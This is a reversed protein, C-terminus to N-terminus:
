DIFRGFDPPGAPASALLQKLAARPSLSQGPATMAAAVAGVVRPAAFSTGSWRATADPFSLSGAPTAMTGALFTSREDVGYACARVWPGRNSFSAPQRQRDVAAVGVVHDYGRLEGFAAPWMRRHPTGAASALVYDNGAAAVYVGKSRSRLWALARALAMPPRDAESPGAISLNVIAASRVRLLDLALEVDDVLLVDDLTVEPDLLSDPARQRIIGAIFTGHGGVVSLFTALGEDYLQDRDDGDDAYDRALLPHTTSSKVFGTDLIAVPVGRGTGTGKRGEPEVPRPGDPVPLDGPGFRYVPAGALVHNVTVAQAQEEPSLDDLRERLAAVADPAERNQRVLDWRRVGLEELLRGESCRIRERRAGAEELFPALRDEYRADVLVEHPRYLYREEGCARWGVRRDWEIAAWLADASAEGKPGDDTAEPKM